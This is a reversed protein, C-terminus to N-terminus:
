TSEETTAGYSFIRYVFLLTTGWQKFASHKGQKCLSQTKQFSDNESVIDKFHNNEKLM